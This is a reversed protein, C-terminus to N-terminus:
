ANNLWSQFMLISWLQKSMDRHHSQHLNWINEVALPNLYGQKKLTETALLDAAWPKLPGRLWQGLPMEFGAKPRETLTEPVYRSLVKRLLWKGKGNCIKMKLPLQWAFAMLEPDTFPTRTELSVAMAARDVKVMIDDPFYTLSDQM